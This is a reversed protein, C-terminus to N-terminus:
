NVRDELHVGLGSVVLTFLFASWGLFAGTSGSSWACVLSAPHQDLEAGSRQASPPRPMECRQVVPEVEACYCTPLPHVPFGLNEGEGELTGWGRCAWSMLRGQFM